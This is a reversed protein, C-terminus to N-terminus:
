LLDLLAAGGTMDCTGRGEEIVLREVRGEDAIIVHRALRDYFGMVPVDFTYGIAKAYEATPDALVMIGADTAGTTDSWSKAVQVDNVVIVAIDHIGKARIADAHAVLGPLHTMTCTGTFAGPMGILLVRRGNTLESVTIKQPGDDNLFRLTAEPLSDGEQIGM